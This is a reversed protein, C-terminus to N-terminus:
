DSGQGRRAGARTRRPRGRARPCQHRRVDAANRPMDPTFLTEVRAGVRLTCWPLRHRAIGDNVGRQLREALQLMREFAPETLVQSLVARMVAVTLANGALTGGFGAHAGRGLNQSVGLHNRDGQRAQALEHPHQAPHVAKRDRVDGAM